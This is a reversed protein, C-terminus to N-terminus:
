YGEDPTNEHIYEVLCGNSCFIWESECAYNEGTKFNHPDLEKGCNNCVAILEECKEEVRISYLGLKIKYPIVIVNNM